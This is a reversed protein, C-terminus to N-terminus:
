RRGLAEKFIRQPPHLCALSLELLGPDSARGCPFFSEAYAFSLFLCPNLVWNCKRELTSEQAWVVCEQELPHGCATRDRSVSAAAPPGLWAGPELHPQWCVAGRCRSGPVPGRGLTPAVRSGWARGLLFRGQSIRGVGGDCEWPWCGGTGEGREQSVRAQWM